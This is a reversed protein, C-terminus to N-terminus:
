PSAPGPSTLATASAESRDTDRADQEPIVVLRPVGCLHCRGTGHCRRCGDGTCIWCPGHGLCGDCPLAAM